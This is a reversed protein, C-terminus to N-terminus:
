DHYPMGIIAGRVNDGHFLCASPYNTLDITKAIDKLLMLSKANYCGKEPAGPLEIITGEKDHDKSTTIKDGFFYIENRHNVFSLIKQLVDFFNDPIPYQTCPKDLIKGLDPWVDNRLSTTLYKDDKFKFTAHREGIKVFIPQENIRLLEKVAMYPISIDFSAQCNIWYQILSINDTAFLCGDRILVGSAWTHSENNPIIFKEITKLAPLFTENLEVLEGDLQREPLQQHQVCDVFCKFKKSSVILKGKENLQLTITDECTAIAKVFQKANPCVDINIDIPTSLLLNGNFGTVTRNKIHFHTLAPFHDEKAIAGQVFKLEKLM